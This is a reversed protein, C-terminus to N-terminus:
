LRLLACRGEVLKHRGFLGGRFRLRLILNLSARISEVALKLSRRLRVIMVIAVILM